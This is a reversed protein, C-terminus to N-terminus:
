RQGPAVRFKDGSNAPIRPLVAAELDILDVRAGLRPWVHHHRRNILHAALAFGSSLLWGVLEGAFGRTLLLSLCVYYYAALAVFGGHLLSPRDKKQDPFLLALPQTRQGLRKTVCGIRPVNSCAPADIQLLASLIFAALKCAM